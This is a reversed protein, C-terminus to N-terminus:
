ASMMLACPCFIPVAAESLCVRAHSDLDVNGLQRRASVPNVNMGDAFALRGSEGARATVEVRFILLVALVIRFTGVRSIQDVKFDAGVSRCLSREHVGGHGEAVAWVRQKMLTPGGKDDVLFGVVVFRIWGTVGARADRAAYDFFSAAFRLNPTCRTQNRRLAFTPRRPKNFAIVSDQRAM